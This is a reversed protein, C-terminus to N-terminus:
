PLDSATLTRMVWRYMRQTAVLDLQERTADVNSLELAGQQISGMGDTRPNGTVPDGSADTAMFLNKGIALLGENNAFRAFEIQGVETIAGSHNRVSVRGSYDIAIQGVPVQTDVHVPPDLTSGESNGLVLNGESNRVFNGARTYAVAKQSQFTTRVQFFGDGEIMLDLKGGSIDVRGESFDWQKKIVRVGAGIQLGTNAILDGGTEGAGASPRPQVDEFLTRSRKFGLTNVNALNHAHVAIKTRLARELARLAVMESEPWQDDDNPRALMGLHPLTRISGTRSRTRATDIREDRAAFVASPPAPSSAEAQAPSADLLRQSLAGAIGGIVAVVFLGGVYQVSSM